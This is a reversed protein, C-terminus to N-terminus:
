LGVKVLLESVTKEIQHNLSGEVLHKQEETLMEWKKPLNEINVQQIGEHYFSDGQSVGNLYPGINLAVYVIPNSKEDTFSRQNVGYGYTGPMSDMDRPTLELLLDVSEKGAEDKDKLVVTDFGKKQLYGLVVDLLKENYRHDRIVDYDNNYATTRVISFHPYNPFNNVIGVTNIEGVDVKTMPATCANCFVFLVMVVVVKVKRYM